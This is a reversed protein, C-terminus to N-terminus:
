PEIALDVRDSGLTPSKGIEILRTEDLPLFEQAAAVLQSQAAAGEIRLPLCQIFLTRLQRLLVRQAVTEFTKGLSDPGGDVLQIEGLTM